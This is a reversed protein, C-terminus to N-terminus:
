RHNLRCFPPDFTFRIENRRVIFFDFAKSTSRIVWRDDIPRTSPGEVVKFLAKRFCQSQNVLRQPSFLLVQGDEESSVPGQDEDGRLKQRSEMIGKVQARKWVPPVFGVRTSTKIYNQYITIIM